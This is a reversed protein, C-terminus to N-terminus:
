SFAMASLALPPANRTRLRSARCRRRPRPQADEAAVLVDVGLDDVVQGAARQGRGAGGVLIQAALQVVAAVLRRGCATPLAIASRAMAAPM